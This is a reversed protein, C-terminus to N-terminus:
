FISVFWDSPPKELHFVTPVLNYRHDERRRQADRAAHGAKGLVRLRVLVGFDDLHDLLLILFFRRLLFRRFGHLLRLGRRHLFLRLFLRRGRRFGHLLRFGRGRRFRRLSFFRLSFGRGRRHRFFRLGFGRWRRHRFFRLSLRRGRGHRFFRLGVFGLLFFFDLGFFRLSLFRLGFFGLGFFGLRLLLGDLLRGDGDGLNLLRGFFRGGGVLHLLFVDGHADLPLVLVVGEAQARRGEGDGEAAGVALDIGRLDGFLVAPLVGEGVQRGLAARFDDVIGNVRVVHGIVVLVNAAQGHGVGAGRLGDRFFFGDSVLLGGRVVLVEDVILHVAVGGLELVAIDRGDGLRFVAGDDVHAFGGFCGNLAFFGVGLLGLFVALEVFVEGEGFLALQGLFISFGFDGLNIEARQLHHDAFGLIVLVHHGEARGQDPKVVDVIGELPLEGRVVRRPRINGARGSIRQRNSGAIVHDVDVVRLLGAQAVRHVVKLLVRFLHKM